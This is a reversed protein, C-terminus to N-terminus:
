FIINFVCISKPINNKIDLLLKYHIIKINFILILIQFLPLRIKFKLVSIWYYNITNHYM